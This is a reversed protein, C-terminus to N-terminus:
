EQMEMADGGATQPKLRDAGPTYIEMVDVSFHERSSPPPKGEGAFQATAFQRTAFQRTKFQFKTGAM